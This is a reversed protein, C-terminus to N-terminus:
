SEASIPAPGDKGCRSNHGCDVNNGQQADDGPTTPQVQPRACPEPEAHKEKQESAAIARPDPSAQPLFSRDDNPQRRERGRDHDETRWAVGTLKTPLQWDADHKQSDTTRQCEQHLTEPAGVVRDWRQNNTGPDETAIYGFREILMRAVAKPCDAQHVPKTAVLGIEREWYQAVDSVKRAQDLRV